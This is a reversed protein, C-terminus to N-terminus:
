PKQLDVDDIPLDWHALLIEFRRQEEKRFTEQDPYLSKTITAEDFGDATVLVNKFVITVRYDWRGEETGHLRPKVASVKLIRGQEIQKQLVPFHNKKFLRIFEDAYGWRTKYYYEIVYPRDSAPPRSEQGPLVGPLLAACLVALLAPGLHLSANLAFPNQMAAEKTPIKEGPRRGAVCVAIM